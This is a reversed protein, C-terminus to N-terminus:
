CKCVLFINRLRSIMNFLHQIVTFNLCIESFSFFFVNSPENRSIQQRCLLEDQCKKKCKRSWRLIHEQTNMNSYVAQDKNSLPSCPYLTCPKLSGHQVSVYQLIDSWTIKLLISLIWSVFGMFASERPEVNISPPRRELLITQVDSNETM